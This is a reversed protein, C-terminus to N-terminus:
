QKGRSQSVDLGRSLFAVYLEFLTFQHDLPQTSIYKGRQVPNQTYKHKNNFFVVENENTWSVSILLHEPIGVHVETVKVYQVFNNQSPLPKM